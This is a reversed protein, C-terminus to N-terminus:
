MGSKSRSHALSESEFSNMVVMRPTGLHCEQNVINHIKRLDSTSGHVM